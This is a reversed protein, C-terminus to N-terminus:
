KILIIMTGLSLSLSGSPPPPPPPASLSEWTMENDDYSIAVSAVSAAESFAKVCLEFNTPTSARGQWSQTFNGLLARGMPRRSREPGVDYRIAECTEFDSYFEEKEEGEQGTSLGVM